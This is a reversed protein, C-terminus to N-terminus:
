SSLIKESYMSVLLSAGAESHSCENDGVLLEVSLSANLVLSTPLSLPGSHCHHGARADANSSILCRENFASTM